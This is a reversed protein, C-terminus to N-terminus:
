LLWIELATVLSLSLIIEERMWGWWGMMGLSSIDRERFGRAGIYYIQISGMSLRGRFLSCWRRPLWCIM